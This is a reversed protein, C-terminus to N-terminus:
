TLRAWNIYDVSDPTYAIRLGEPEFGLHRMWSNTEPDDRSTTQLRRYKSAWHNMFQKIAKWFGKRYSPVYVSPILFVEANGEWNEIYGGIAIIRGDHILTSSNAIEALKKIRPLLPSTAEQERLIMLDFHSPHFPINNM